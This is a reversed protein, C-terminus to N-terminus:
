VRQNRQKHPKYLNIARWDGEFVAYPRQLQDLFWVLPAFLPQFRRGQHYASGEPKGLLRGYITKESFWLFIKKLLQVTKRFIQLALYRQMTISIVLM